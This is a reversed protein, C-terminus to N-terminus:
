DFHGEIYKHLVSAIFTQYPIGEYAAKEKLRTLDHSSLRINIRADKKLTERAIKQVRLKEKEFEKVTRWEGREYSALLETEEPTLKKPTDKPM